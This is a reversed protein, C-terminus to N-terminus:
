GRTNRESWPASIVSGPSIQAFHNALTDVEDLFLTGHQAQSVLGPNDSQVDTYAGRKHGFLENEVLLDPIAGCNVPVFPYKQRSSGYHIARAVLEKGTGTEGEILVPAERHAIKEILQLTELFVQSQGIM